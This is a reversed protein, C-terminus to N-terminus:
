DQNDNCLVWKLKTDSSVLSSRLWKDKVLGLKKLSHLVKGAPRAWSQRDASLSRRDPWLIEGLETCTLPGNALADLTKQQIETLEIV